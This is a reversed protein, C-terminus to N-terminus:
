WVLWGRFASNGGKALIAVNEVRRRNFIFRIEEKNKIEKFRSLNSTVDDISPQLGANTVNHGVYITNPGDNKISYGKVLHEPHTITDIFIFETTTVTGSVPLVAGEDMEERLEQLINALLKFNNALLKQNDTEIKILENLSASIDDLTIATLAQPNITEKPRFTISNPQQEAM